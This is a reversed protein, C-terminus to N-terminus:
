QPELLRVNAAQAGKPGATVDFEVAQGEDLSHAQGPKVSMWILPAAGSLIGMMSVTPLLFDPGATRESRLEFGLDDLHAM